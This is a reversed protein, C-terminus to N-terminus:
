VLGPKGVAGAQGKRARDDEVDAGLPTERQGCDRSVQYSCEPVKVANALEQQGQQHEKTTREERQM